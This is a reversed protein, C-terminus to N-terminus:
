IHRSSRDRDDDMCLFIRTVVKIPRIQTAVTATPARVRKRYSLVGPRIPSTEAVQGEADAIRRDDSFDVSTM